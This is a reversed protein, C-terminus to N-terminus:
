FVEFNYYKYDLLQIDSYGINYNFDSVAYILNIVWWDATFGRKSLLRFVEQFFEAKSSGTCQFKAVSRTIKKHKLTMQLALQDIETRKLVCCNKRKDYNLHSCVCWRYGLLIQPSKATHMNATPYTTHYIDRKLVTMKLIVSPKM